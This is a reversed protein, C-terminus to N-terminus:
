CYEGDLRRRKLAAPVQPPHKVSKEKRGEGGEGGSSSELDQLLQALDGRLRGRGGREEDREEKKRGVGREREKRREPETVAPAPESATIMISSASPRLAWSRTHPPTEERVLHRKRSSDSQSVSSTTKNTSRRSRLPDVPPPLQRVKRVRQAGTRGGTPVAAPLSTTRLTAGPKILRPAPNNSPPPTYNVKHSQPQTRSPGTSLSPPPPHSHSTTITPLASSAAASSQTVASLSCLVPTLEGATFILHKGM